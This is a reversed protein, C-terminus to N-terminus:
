AKILNHSITTGAMALVEGDFFEHRRESHEELAYYEASTYHRQGEPQGM